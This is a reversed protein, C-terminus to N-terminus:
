ARESRQFVMLESNGPPMPVLESAVLEFGHGRFFNEAAARPMVAPFAGNRIGSKAWAKMTDDPLCRETVIDFVAWGGRKIVRTMELWYCCTVMFPVGSFVKHAQVIDVTDNRTQKLSYGDCTQLTVDYTDVLYSSWPSATEYIEYRKPKCLQLTKDLYRGTGPGIEVIVQGPKEFLGCRQLVDITRQTMGPIGNMVSDVYDGISVGAAKAQAITREFPIYNATDSYDHNDNRAIVFGLPALSANVASKFSRLLPKVLM